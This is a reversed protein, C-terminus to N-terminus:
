KNNFFNSFRQSGYEGNTLEIIRSISMKKRKINKRSLFDKVGFQCAGTIVRYCKVAEDFKLVSKLTLDKYDDKSRADIKFILDEKAEKVTDGHSYIGNGDSVIYFTKETAYKKVKWVNGKKSITECFIGDVSIYKGNQWSLLTNVNSGIWKSDGRLYLYGGVTPNFGEPISTLGSLDLYGGVTPNFGEPISTLGSLYLYGGVTPNFGEPISTLGSLDLYGGVTPNFGEPISTLGRLDLYGSIQDIGLFQNKTLNYKKCFEKKTM